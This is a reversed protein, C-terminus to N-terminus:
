DHTLLLFDCSFVLAHFYFNYMMDKARANKQTQRFDAPFLDAASLDNTVWFAHTFPIGESIYHFDCLSAIQGIKQFHAHTFFAGSFDALALSGTYM